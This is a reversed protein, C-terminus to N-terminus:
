INFYQVLKLCDYGMFKWEKETLMNLFLHHVFKRELFTLEATTLLFMFDVM